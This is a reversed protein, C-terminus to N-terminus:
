TESSSKNFVRDLSLSVLPHFLGVEDLLGPSIYFIQANPPQIRRFLRGLVFHEEFFVLSLM